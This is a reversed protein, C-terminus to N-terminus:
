PVPAVCVVRFGFDLSRLGPRDGHGRYACRARAGDDSWAGGRLVRYDGSDPGIPDLQGDTVTRYYEADYRDATWEWVNGAMDAAGVWSDGAPSYSGVPSTRGVCGSYNVLDCTPSDDGWPYEVAEPGRAAYEWQAETPLTCTEGIEASLWEAYAQADHWSVGVV